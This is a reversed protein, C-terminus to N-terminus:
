GIDKNPVCYLMWALNLRSYGHKMSFLIDFKAWWRFKRIAKEDKLGSKVAKFWWRLTPTPRYRIRWWKLKLEIYHINILDSGGVYFLAAVGMIFHDRSYGKHQDVYKKYRKGNANRGKVRPLPPGLWRYHKQLCEILSPLFLYRLEPYAIIAKGLRISADGRGMPFMGYLLYEWDKKISLLLKWVYDIWYYNKM